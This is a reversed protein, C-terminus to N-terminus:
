TCKQKDTTLQEVVREFEDDVCKNTSIGSGTEKTSDQRERKDWIREGKLRGPRGNRRVYDDAWADLELRDLAIGQYGIPVETLFPRVDSNFRNRDMGLYQPVDRFRILRPTVPSVKGTKVAHSVRAKMPQVPVGM